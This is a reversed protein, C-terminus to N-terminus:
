RPGADPWLGDRYGRRLSLDRVSQLCAMPDIDVAKLIARPEARALRKPDEDWEILRGNVGEAIFDAIGCTRTVVAPIGCSLAEAATMLFGEQRSNGLLM